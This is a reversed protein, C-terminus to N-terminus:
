IEGPIQAVLDEWERKLIAFQYESGWRGKFFVNEIFYAEQRFSLSKLMQISAKNEADVTEIIRHIGKERFLFYMIGRMTEKAYGQRQHLHSITIGAEAIRSDATQLYIACDGVLQGTLINEIGYQVWEGPVIFLKNKHEEIFDKAQERTFTEFGQYKTIEPNSRYQHFADLDSERLNRIKLRPTDFLVKGLAFTKSL